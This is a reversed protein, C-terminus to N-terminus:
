IVICLIIFFNMFLFSDKEKLLLALFFLFNSYDRPSLGSQTETSRKNIVVLVLRCSKIGIIQSEISLSFIKKLLKKIKMFIPMYSENNLKDPFTEIIKTILELGLCKGGITPVSIWDPEIGYALLVLKKILNIIIDHDCYDFIKKM